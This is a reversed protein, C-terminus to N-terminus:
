FSIAVTWIDKQLLYIYIHKGHAIKHKHLMVIMRFKQCPWFFFIDTNGSVRSVRGKQGLQLNIEGCNANRYFDAIETAYVLRRKPEMGENRHSPLM